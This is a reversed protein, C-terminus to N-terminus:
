QAGNNTTQPTTQPQVTQNTDPPPADLNVRNIFNQPNPMRFWDVTPKRSSSASPAQIRVRLLANEKPWTLEITTAIKANETAEVPEYDDLRVHLKEFGDLDRLSIERVLYPPRRDLSLVKIVATAGTDPDAAAYLLEHYDDTVHYLPGILDPDEIYVVAVGLATLVEDPRLPIQPTYGMNLREWRGYWVTSVEPKIALWYWTDNTGLSLGEVGALRGNLWLYGPRRFLLNGQLDFRRKNGDDDVFEVHTDAISWLHSIQENNTNLRDMAEVMTFREPATQQTTAGNCGVLASLCLLAFTCTVTLRRIYHTPPSVPISPM